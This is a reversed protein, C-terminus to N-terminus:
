VQTGRCCTPEDLSITRMPQLSLTTKSEKIYAKLEPCILLIEPICNHCILAIKRVLVVFVFVRLKEMIRLNGKVCGVEHARQINMSETQM